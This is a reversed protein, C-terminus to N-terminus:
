KLWFRARNAHQRSARGHSLGLLHLLIAPAGSRDEAAWRRESGRANM